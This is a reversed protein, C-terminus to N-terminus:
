ISGTKLSEKKNLQFDATGFLIFIPLLLYESLTGNKDPQDTKGKNNQVSFM